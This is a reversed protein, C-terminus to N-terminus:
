VKTRSPDRKLLSGSMPLQGARLHKLFYTLGKKESHQCTFTPMDGLVNKCAMKSVHIMPEGDSSGIGVKM